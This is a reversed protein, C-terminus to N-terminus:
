PAAMTFAASPPRPADYDPSTGASAYGFPADRLTEYVWRNADECAMCHDTDHDDVEGILPHYEDYPIATM